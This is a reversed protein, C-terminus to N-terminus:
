RATGAGEAKREKKEIRQGTVFVTVLGLVSTGGIIGATVDHGTLAMVLSVGLGALGIILGFWQGRSSQKVQQPVVMKELEMRHDSQKEMRTLIRDASGPVLDNYGKLVEPPPIPGMWTQSSRIRILALVARREREPLDALAAKAQEPIPGDAMVVAESKKSLRKPKKAAM